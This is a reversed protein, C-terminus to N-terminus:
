GEGEPSVLAARLAEAALRTFIPRGMERDLHSGDAFAEETLPTDVSLDILEVGNAWLYADLDSVYRLLAESQPQKVGDRRLPMRVFVLQIGAREMEAIMHPLFSVGVVADFDTVDHLDAAAQLAGFREPDMQSAQFSRAAANRLDDEASGVLISAARRVITEAYDRLLERGGYLPWAHEVVRIWAPQSARYALAELLPEERKAIREIRDRYNGTVRFSPETLLTDSFCVIAWRPNYEGAAIVNKLALYWYASASGGSTWKLTRLALLASLEDEDIGEDLLSNGLLVVDPSAAAIEQQKADISSAPLRHAMIQSAVVTGAVVVLVVLIWGLGLPRPDFAGQENRRGRQSADPRNM